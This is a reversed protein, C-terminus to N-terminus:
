AIELVDGVTVRDLLEPRGELIYRAPAKPAYIRWPRALRKDVVRFEEDLWVVGISFFVFWMHIATQGVGASPQVILYGKGPALPRRFMLGRLRCVYSQCWRVEVVQVGDASRNVLNVIRDM